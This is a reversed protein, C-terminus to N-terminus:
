QLNDLDIYLQQLIKSIDSLAKKLLDNEKELRTMAERIDPEIAFYEVDMVESLKRLTELTFWGNKLGRSITKDSIGIYKKSRPNGLSRISLGCDTLEERFLEPIIRYHREPPRGRM